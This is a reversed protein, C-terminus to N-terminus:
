KMWVSVLSIARCMWITFRRQLDIVAASEDAREFGDDFPLVVEIARERDDVDDRPIAGAEKVFEGAGEADGTEGNEAGLHDGAGIV